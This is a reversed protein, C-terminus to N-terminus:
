QQTYNRCLLKSVGQLIMGPFGKFVERLAEESIPKYQYLTQYFDLCIQELDESKTFIQGNSDKLESM